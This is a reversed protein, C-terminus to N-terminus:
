AEPELGTVSRQRQTKKGSSGISCLAPDM